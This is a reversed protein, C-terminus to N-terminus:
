AGGKEIFALVARAFAARDQPLGALRERYKTIQREREAALSASEAALAREEEASKEKLLEAHRKQADARAAAKRRQAEAEAEAILAAANKEAGLLKELMDSM